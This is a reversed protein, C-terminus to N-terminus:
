PLMVVKVKALEAQIQEETAPERRKSEAFVGLEFRTNLECVIQARSLSDYFGHWCWVPPVMVTDTTVTLSGDAMVKKVTQKEYLEQPATIRAKWEGPQMWLISPDDMHTLKECEVEYITREGKRVVIVFQRM